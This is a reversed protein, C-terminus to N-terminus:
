KSRALIRQSNALSRLLTESDMKSVHKWSCSSARTKKWFNVCPKGVTVTAGHATIFQGTQSHTCDDMSHTTWGIAAIMAQCVSVSQAVHLCEGRINGIQRM